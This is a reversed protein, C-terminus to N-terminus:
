IMKVFVVHKGRQEVEIFGNKLYFLRATSNSLIADLRYAPCQKSIFFKDVALILASGIGEGRFGEKVAITTLCPAVAMGAYLVPPSLPKTEYWLCLMSPQRLIKFLIKSWRLVSLNSFITRRLQEPDTTASCVGVCVGDRIAALVISDRDARIVNYLYTLHDGGLKTNLSYGLARLHLNVISPLDADQMPRVLLEVIGDSSSQIVM